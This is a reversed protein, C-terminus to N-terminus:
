PQLPNEPDAANALPPPPEKRAYLFPRAEPVREVLRRRDSTFCAQSVEPTDLRDCVQRMAANFGIGAGMILGVAWTRLAVEKEQTTGGGPLTLHWQKEGRVVQEYDCALTGPPPAPRHIVVEVYPFRVPEQEASFEPGNVLHFEVFKSLCVSNPDDARRELVRGYADGPIEDPEFVGQEVNFRFGWESGGFKRLHEDFAEEVHAGTTTGSYIRV